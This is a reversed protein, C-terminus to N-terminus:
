CNEKKEGAKNLNLQCLINHLKLTHMMNFLHIYTNCFSRLGVVYDGNRKQPSLM